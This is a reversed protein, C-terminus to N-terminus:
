KRFGKSYLVNAMRDCLKIFTAGPTNRIGEYYKENAREKRNRGKENTLAYTIEAVTEGFEKKIDNYTIRCDEILDHTWASALVDRKIEDPLLHIYQGAFDYVMALHTSYDLDDYKHNTDSHAKTAFDRAYKVFENYDKQQIQQITMTTNQQYKGPKDPLRHSAKVWKM